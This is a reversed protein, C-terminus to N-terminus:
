MKALPPVRTHWDTAAEHARGIRLALAEQYPRCVVQLSTPMAKSTFGIPIALGCFGIQNVFRTLTAPTTAEDVDALPMPPVQSTPALLADAKGLAQLMAAKDAQARWRAEIYAKASVKGSQVRVRVGEDMPSAPNDAVVGHIAYAEGMMIEAARSFEPLPKPLDITVINAGLTRYVEIAADYAKLIDPDVPKRERDDIVALTLGRVGAELEAFPDSPAIDATTPDRDDPGQMAQFLLAADHVSRALPGVTDLSPSLPVIGHLSIRGSTTKLGFLNNFGAPGRVSGGTDTGIAITALRAAVAAASGNSSGGATHPVDANWPNSPAGLHQNTGWGGLAFEVTHVKGLVIAGQAELKTVITATQTAVRDRRTASGATCVRGAIEILDKVGIPVGDLAGLSKGDAYRQTSRAAAARAEDAYVDIFAHVKGNLAAIRALHSAVVDDPTFERAKYGAVLEGANLFSLQDQAVASQDSM